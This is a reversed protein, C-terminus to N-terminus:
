EKLMTGIKILFYLKISLDTYFDDILICIFSKQYNTDKHLYM